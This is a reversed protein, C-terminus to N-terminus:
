NKIDRLKAIRKGNPKAAPFLNTTGNFRLSLNLSFSINLNIKENNISNTLLEFNYLEQENISSNNM